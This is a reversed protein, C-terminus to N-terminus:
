MKIEVTGSHSCYPCNFIKDVKAPGVKQVKIKRSKKKGM